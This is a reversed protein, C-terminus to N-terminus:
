KSRRVADLASIPQGNKFFKVRGTTMLEIRDGLPIAQFEAPTLTKETGDPSRVIVKDCNM